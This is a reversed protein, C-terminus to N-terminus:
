IEKNEFLKPKENKMAAHAFIPVSASKQRQTLSVYKPPFYMFFNNLFLPVFKNESDQFLRSKRCGDMGARLVVWGRICHTGPREWPYLPRPTSNVVWGM